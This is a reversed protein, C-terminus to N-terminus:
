AVCPMGVPPPHKKQCFVVATPVCPLVLSLQLPSGAQMSSAHQEDLTEDAVSQVRVPTCGVAVSVAVGVVMLLPESAPMEHDDVSAVLQVPVLKEVLPAVDPETITLGVTLVAYETVQVPAPPWADSMSVTVTVLWGGAAGVM